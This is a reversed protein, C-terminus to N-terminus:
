SVLSVTDKGDGQLLDQITKLSSRVDTEFTKNDSPIIEKVVTDAETHSPVPSNNNVRQGQAKKPVAKKPLTRDSDKAMILLKHPSVESGELSLKHIHIPHKRDNSVTGQPITSGNKNLNLVQLPGQPKPKVM